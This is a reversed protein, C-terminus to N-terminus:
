RIRVGRPAAPPMGSPASAAEIKVAVDGSLNTISVSLSGNSPTLNQQSLVTGAITDWIQVRYATNLLNGITITTSIAAPTTAANAWTHERNQVWLYAATRDARRMAYVRANAQSSSVTEGTYGPPADSPTMLYVFNGGHYDLGEFFAAAARREALKATRAFTDEELWYWDIPTTGLPSFLGAWMENHVARRGGEGQTGPLNPVDWLTTGVGIEGWIWPKPGGSWSTGDGLGLGSCYTPINRLCWSFRYVFNAADNTLAAPYRSIMMYDHYNALDFAASSWFAPSTAQSGQSTTRLHAYPDTARQYNGYAQYFNFLSTGPIVHGHENHKEWALIATSYGWRAVRYRFNRKWSNLIWAPSWDSTDGPNQPLTFWPGSASALQIAVGRQEASEVIKDLEYSSWPNYFTGLPRPLSADSNPDNGPNDKAFHREFDPDSIVNYTLAGSGDVPGFSVDDVAVSGGSGTNVIQVSVLSTGPTFNTSYETWGSTGATTQVQALVNGAGFLMGNRIQVQVVGGTLGSTKIWASLRHSRTPEAVALRQYWGNGNVPRSARMGSRVNATQIEVGQAPGDSTGQQRWVTQAGETGLAYDAHDWIRTLNVKNDGFTAFTSEFNYSRDLGSPWWQRGVAIPIYSLGNDYALFRPDRPSTRIFGKAASATVTFSLTGTAPYRGTGERDQATLYYQYTGTENAAFRVCWQPPDRRGLVQANLSSDRLRLYDELYFAPLVISRGSPSTLHMDVSIGESGTWTMTAPNNAPTDAPDYFYYPNPYTKSLNFRWEIKQYLGTSSGGTLNLIDPPLAQVLSGSFTVLAAPLLWRVKLSKM